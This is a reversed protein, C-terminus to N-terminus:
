VSGGGRNPQPRHGREGHGAGDRRRTTQVLWVTSAVAALGLVVPWPHAIATDEVPALPNAFM